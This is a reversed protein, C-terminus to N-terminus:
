LRPGAWMGGKEVAVITREVAARFLPPLRELYQASRYGPETAWRCIVCSPVHVAPGYVVFLSKRQPGPPKWGRHIARSDFPVASGARLRVTLQGPFVTETPAWGPRVTAPGDLLAEEAATNPRDQSGPVMTFCADDQLVVLVQSGFGSTPTERVEREKPSDKGWAAYSDRHWQGRYDYGGGMSFAAIGQMCYQPGCLASVFAMLKPGSLAEALPAQLVAPNHPDQFRYPGAAPSRQEFKAAGDHKLAIAADISREYALQAAGLLEPPVADEIIVFGDRCYDAVQRATAEAAM